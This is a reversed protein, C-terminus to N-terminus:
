GLRFGMATIWLLSERTTGLPKYELGVHGAYGADDLATLISLFNLEGTGPQHRSPPDAIQVHGIRPLLARLTAIINGEMRQLHYVDFQLRVNEAGVDDLLRVADASRSLLFGPLDITNVPEVLLILGAAALAAAAFRVNDIVCAWQEEHSLSGDRLGVLCNLMPVDLRRAAEVARAVGDRFEERRAPHAAIGRDGAQRDGVPVNFLLVRLERRSLEAAVAELDYEYPFLPDAAVFGGEVATFGAARAEGFRKLFSVEPFLLSLNASFRPM